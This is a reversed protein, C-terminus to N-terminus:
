FEFQKKKIKSHFESIEQFQMLNDISSMHMIWETQNNKNFLKM